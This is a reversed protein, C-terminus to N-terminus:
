LKLSNTFCIACTRTLHWPHHPSQLRSHLSCVENSVRDILCVDTYSREDATCVANVKRYYACFVTKTFNPFMPWASCTPQVKIMYENQPKLIVNHNQHYWGPRADACLNAVLMGVQMPMCAYELKSPLSNLAIGKSFSIKVYWCSSSTLANSPATIRGECISINWALFGLRRVM